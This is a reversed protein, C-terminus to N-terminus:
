EEKAPHAPKGNKENTEEEEAAANRRRRIVLIVVLVAVVAAVVAGIIVPLPTGSDKKSLNMTQPAIQNATFQITQSKNEYGSKAVQITYAGEPINPFTAYGSSNTASNMPLSGTTKPQAIVNANTIPNGNSETVRLQLTGKAASVNLDVTIQTTGITSNYGTKTANATITCLTQKSIKPANFTIKYYGNGDEKLQTFNGGKNSTFNLNAKSAPGTGNYTVYARVTSQNASNVLAPDATLTVNLYVVDILYTTLKAQGSTYGSTQATITSSNASCTSYFTGTAYTEGFPITLTSNVNGAEPASSSLYVMIDGNPDKAPKGKSDQLQVQIADYSKGDAPLMGPLCYVALKSPVPGVTNLDAQSSTFSTAAATISTAGSQYTTSFQATAYTEGVGITVTQEIKGVATNSSSLTVVIDESSQALKGKADQLQVAVQQNMVGDAPVKSPAVYVKLNLPTNGVLQTTITVHGSTYGSCVATIVASGAAGTTVSAVAFTKGAEITVTSDVTVIAASASSLSIQLGEKPAKAPAGTSDQLQVVVADYSNGDAPLLSPFGYVALASPIPGITTVTTTVTMYGTAAATITTSGPTYTTFFNASTQTEGKAITVTSDVTGVDTQSSSLRVTIDQQARAPVGKADLLQVSIVRYERNDALVSTPGADIKLQPTGSTAASALISQTFVVQSIALVLLIVITAFPKTKTMYKKVSLTSQQNTTTSPPELIYLRTYYYVINVVQLVFSCSKGAM